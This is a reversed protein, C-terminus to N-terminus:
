YGGFLCELDYNHPAKKMREKRTRYQMGRLHMLLGMPIVCGFAACYGISQGCDCKIDASM